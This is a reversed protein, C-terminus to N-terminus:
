NKEHRFSFHKFTYTIKIQTGLTETGNIEFRIGNEEARKKMNAIGNGQRKGNNVTYGKGDDAVLISLELGTLDVHVSIKEAGSHKM